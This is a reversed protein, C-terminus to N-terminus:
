KTTLFEAFIKPYPYDHTDRKQIELKIEPDISLLLAKAAYANGHPDNDNQICLINQVPVVKLNAYHAFDNERLDTLPIGCLIIKIISEHVTKLIHMLVLTGISKAIINVQSNGILAIIKEAESTVWNNETAGTTWHQWYFVEIDHTTALQQKTEEAWIKNFTSFGPLIITKM